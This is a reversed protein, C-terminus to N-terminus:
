LNERSGSAESGSASLQVAIVFFLGELATRHGPSSKAM